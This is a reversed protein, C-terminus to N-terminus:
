ILISIKGFHQGGQQHQLALSIQDLSFASDIVPKFDMADLDHIMEVQHAYSGVTVGTLKIQKSMLAVTPVVGQIGTLVGVLVIRAGIAAAGISQPLTGPGGTEVVVDVGRGETLRLVEAEWEPNTRYNVTADAGLSAAKALKEDSSSTVIVRAGRKKALQLAFISVGGTGLVLVTEGAQVAAEAVIARWATLGATPLTAAQQANWGEPVRTFWGAPRIVVETGYGDIGDGPTRQFDSRPAIGSRWDPFFTSVVSWGVQFDTVGEGVAEVIGAGDTLLIRGDAVPLRGLAVNLDHGNLSSAQVRVRIENPGPAGPDAMERIQPSEIGGPAFFQLAKM